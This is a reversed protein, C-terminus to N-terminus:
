ARQSRGRIYRDFRKWCRSRSELDFALSLPVGYKRWWSRGAEREMLDGVRTTRRFMTPLRRRVELPLPADFGFRPWTYYGNERRGRGAVTEIRRIGLHRAHSLQRAFIALGLGRTQMGRRHIHLQEIVLVPRGRLFRVLLVSGYDSAAPHNLELYIQGRFTGVDVEADHPAGALGALEWAWLRRGFWRSTIRDLGQREEAFFTVRARSRAVPRDWAAVKQRRANQPSM